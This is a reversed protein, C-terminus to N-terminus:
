KKKLTVPVPVIIRGEDQVQQWLRDLLNKAESEYDDSIPNKRPDDSAIIAKYERKKANVKKSFSSSRDKYSFIMPEVDMRDERTDLIIRQALIDRVQALVSRYNNRMKEKDAAVMVNKIRETKTKAEVGERKEKEGITEPLFERGFAYLTEGERRPHLTVKFVKGIEGIMDISLKGDDPLHLTRQLMKMSTEDYGMLFKFRRDLEPLSSPHYTKINLLAIVDKKKELLRFMQVVGDQKEFAALDRHIYALSQDLQTMASDNQEIRIGNIIREHEFLKKNLAHHIKEKFSAAVPLADIKKNMKRIVTDLMKADLVDSKKVGFGMKAKIDFKKSNVALPVDPVENSQSM